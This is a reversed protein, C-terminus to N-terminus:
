GCLKKYIGLRRHGPATGPPRGVTVWSGQWPPLLGRLAGTNATPSRDGCPWNGWGSAKRLTLRSSGTHLLCVVTRLSVATQGEVSARRAKWNRRGVLM